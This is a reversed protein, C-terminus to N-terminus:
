QVPHHFPIRNRIRELAELLARRCARDMANRKELRNLRIIAFNRKEELVIMDSMEDGAFFQLASKKFPM